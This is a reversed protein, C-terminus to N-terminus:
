LVLLALAAGALTAVVDRWSLKDAAFPWPTEWGAERRRQWRRYRVLEVAEWAAALGLVVLLVVLAGLPTWRALLLALLAGAALHQVKDRAAFSTEPDSLDGGWIGDRGRFGDQTWWGSDM